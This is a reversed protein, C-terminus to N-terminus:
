DVDREYARDTRETEFGLSRYLRVAADNAADVFLLGTGAGQRALYALGGIVLARGLGGGGHAPDVGIVYIEGWGHPQHIKTWCFGLLEGDREALLFGDRDFWPEAERARLTAVTWGGQEPHGAFARNNVAVWAAEDRGPEFPRVTVGDPWAPSSALPLAVRMELLTRAPRFGHRAALADDSDTAGLCWLVVGGGGREAV